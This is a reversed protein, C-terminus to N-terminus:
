EPLKYDVLNNLCLSLTLKFKKVSICYSLKPVSALIISEKLRWFLINKRPFCQSNKGIFFFNGIYIIATLRNNVVQVATDMESM